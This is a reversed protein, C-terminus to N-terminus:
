RAGTQEKSKAQEWPEPSSRAEQSSRALELSAGPQSRATGPQEECAAGRQSSRAPEGPQEKSRAAGPQSRALTDMRLWVGVDITSRINHSPPHSHVFRMIANSTLFKVAAGAGGGWGVGGVGIGSCM